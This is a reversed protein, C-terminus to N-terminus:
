STLHRNRYRWRTVMSSHPLAYWLMTDLPRELAPANSRTDSPMRLHPSASMRRFLLADSSAPEEDLIPGDANLNELFQVVKAPDLDLSSASRVKTRFLRKPSPLHGLSKLSAQFYAEVDPPIDLAGQRLQQRTLRLSQGKHHAIANLALKQLSQALLWKFYDDRAARDILYTWGEIRGQQIEAFNVVRPKRKTTGLLSIGLILLCVFLLVGWLASQPVTQILFRGLWFLYLFPIVIVERVFNRFLPTFLIALLLIGGLPLLLKKM